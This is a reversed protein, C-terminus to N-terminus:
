LISLLFIGGVVGLIVALVVMGFSMPERSKAPALTHPAIGPYGALIQPDTEESDQFFLFRNPYITVDWAAYLQERTLGKALVLPASAILAGAEQETLPAALPSDQPFLGTKSLCVLDRATPVSSTWGASSARVAPAGPPPPLGPPSRGWCCGTPPCGWCAACRPWM